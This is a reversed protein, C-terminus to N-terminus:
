GPGMRSQGYYCLTQMKIEGTTEGQDKYLGIWFKLKFIICKSWRDRLLYDLAAAWVSDRRAWFHRQIANM